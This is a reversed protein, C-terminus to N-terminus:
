TGFNEDKKETVRQWELRIIVQYSLVIIVGDWMWEL